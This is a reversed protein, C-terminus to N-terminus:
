LALRCSHEAPQSQHLGAVGQATEGKEKKRKKENELREEADWDDFNDFEGFLNFSVIPNHNYIPNIHNLFCKLHSFPLATLCDQDM